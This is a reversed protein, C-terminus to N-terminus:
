VGRRQIPLAHTGAQGHIDNGAMAIGRAPCAGILREASGGRSGPVADLGPM